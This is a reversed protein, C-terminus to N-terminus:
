KEGAHSRGKNKKQNDCYFKQQKQNKSFDAPHFYTNHSSFPFCEGCICVCCEANFKKSSVFENVGVCASIFHPRPTKVLYFNGHSRMVGEFIIVFLFCSKIYKLNIVQCDLGITKDSTAYHELAKDM